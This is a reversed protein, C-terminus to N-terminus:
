CVKSAGQEVIRKQLFHFSQKWWEEYRKMDESQNDFDPKICRESSILIGDIQFPTSGAMEM